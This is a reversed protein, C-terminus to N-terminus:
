GERLKYGIWFVIIGCLTLAPMLILRFGFELQWLILMPLFVLVIFQLLIGIQQRMNQIESRDIRAVKVEKGVASAPIKIVGISTTKDPVVNVKIVRTAKTKGFVWRGDNADQWATFEQPGAPVKEITFKGDKGSIAAYPHDVILWWGRMWPHIDCKVM